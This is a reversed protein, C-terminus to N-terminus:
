LVPRGLHLIPSNRIFNPQVNQHENHDIIETMDLEMDGRALPDLLGERSASLSNLVLRAAGTLSETTLCETLAEWDSPTRALVVSM